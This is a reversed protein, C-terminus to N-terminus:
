KTKASHEHSMQINALVTVARATIGSFLAQMGVAGTEYEVIQVEGAAELKLVWKALGIVAEDGRGLVALCDHKHYSNVDDPAYAAPCALEKIPEYDGGSTRPNHDIYKGGDRFGVCERGIGVEGEDDFILKYKLAFRECIARAAAASLPSGLAQPPVGPSAVADPTTTPNEM